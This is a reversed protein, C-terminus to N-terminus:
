KVKIKELVPNFLNAIFLSSIFADYGPLYKFMIFSAIGAIGGFIFGRLIGYGSSKPEILMVFIFFWSIMGLPNIKSITFLGTFLLLFGLIHSFKKYSYAFYLGCIIILLRNSEINWALPIKFLTAIFLAFNAPNLFHKHEFRVIHKSLIALASFIVLVFWPQRYDIIGSVIFGSIVASNPFLKKKYFINNILFDFLSCLFIGELVWFIFRFNEITSKLIFLISLLVIVLNKKDKLFKIM